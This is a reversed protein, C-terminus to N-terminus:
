AEGANRHSNSRAHPREASGLGVAPLACEYLDCADQVSLTSSYAIARCGTVVRVWIRGSSLRAQDPEDLM